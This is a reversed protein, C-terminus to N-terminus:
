SLAIRPMAPLPVVAAAAAVRAVSADLDAVELDSYGM